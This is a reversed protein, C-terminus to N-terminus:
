GHINNEKEYIKKGKRWYGAGFIRIKKSRYTFRVTLIGESVKGLCYFREEESSHELDKLIIRQHDLFALQAIAFSVGHKEQNTTDKNDDWEFDSNNTM